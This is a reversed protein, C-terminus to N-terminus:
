NSVVAADHGYLWGINAISRDDRNAIAADRKEQDPGDQLHFRVRNAASMEQLQTARPKRLAEYRRLIKPTDDRM